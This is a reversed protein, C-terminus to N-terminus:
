GYQQLLLQMITKIEWSSTYDTLISYGSTISLNSPQFQNVSTTTNTIYSQQSPIENVAKYDMVTVVKTALDLTITTQLGTDYTFLYTNVTGNVSRQIHTPVGLGQAKGQLLADIKDVYADNLIDESCTPCYSCINCVLSSSVNLLLFLGLIQIAFLRRM